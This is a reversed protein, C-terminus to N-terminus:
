YKQRAKQSTAPMALAFVSCCSVLAFGIWRSPDENVIESFYFYAQQQPTSFILPPVILLMGYLLPPACLLIMFLANRGGLPSTLLLRPGTVFVLRLIRAMTYVPFCGPYIAAKAERLTASKLSHSM